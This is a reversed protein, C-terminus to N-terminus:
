IRENELASQSEVEDSDNEIDIGLFDLPTVNHAETLFRRRSCLVYISMNVLSETAVWPEPDHGTLSFEYYRQAATVKM